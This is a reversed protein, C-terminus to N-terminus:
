TTKPCARFKTHQRENCFPCEVVGWKYGTLEERYRTYNSGDLLNLKREIILEISKAIESIFKKEEIMKQLEAHIEHSGIRILLWGEAQLNVEKRRDRRIRRNGHSRLGDCEIAIKTPSTVTGGYVAFDIEYNIAIEKYDCINPILVKEHPKIFYSRGGYEPYLNLLLYLAKELESAKSLKLFDDLEKYKNQNYLNELFENKTDFQDRIYQIMTALSKEM